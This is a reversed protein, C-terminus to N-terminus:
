FLGPCCAQSWATATVDPQLSRSDQPGRFPLQQAWGPSALDLLLGLRGQSDKSHLTCPSHRVTGVHSSGQLGWPIAALPSPKSPWAPAPPLSSASITGDLLPRQRLLFGALYGAPLRGGDGNWLNPRSTVLAPVHHQLLSFLCGSMLGSQPPVIQCLPGLVTNHILACVEVVVPCVQTPIRTTARQTVRPM